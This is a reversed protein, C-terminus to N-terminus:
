FSRYKNGLIIEDESINRKGDGMIEEVENIERIIRKMEKIDSSIKHDSGKDNKDLTFHREIYKAGLCVAYKIGKGEIEHSSYGNYNMNKMWALNCQNLLAPYLSICHMLVDAGDKDKWRSKKIQNGNLMGTSAMICFNRKKRENYLYVFIDHDHYRQSPIKIYNLNLQMLDKVSQMDKGSVIFELGKNEAYTKLYALQGISFELYKRHEYYTLGYDIEPKNRCKNKIEDPFNDIDWKQFKVAWLNLNKAAEILKKANDISGNHNYCIEAIIKTKV